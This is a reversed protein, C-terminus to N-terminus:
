HLMMILSCVSRCNSLCLPRKKLLQHNSTSCAHRHALTYPQQSQRTNQPRSVAHPQSKYPSPTGSLKLHSQSGGTIGRHVVWSLMLGCSLFDSIEAVDWNSRISVVVILHLNFQSINRSFTKLIGRSNLHAWIILIEDIIRM